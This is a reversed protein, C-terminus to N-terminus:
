APLLPEFGRRAVYFCRTLWRPQGTKEYKPLFSDIKNFIPSHVQINSKDVLSLGSPCTADPIMVEDNRM